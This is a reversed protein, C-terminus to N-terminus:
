PAKLMAAEGPPRWDPASAIDITPDGPTHPPPAPVADMGDPLAQAWLATEVWDRHLQM